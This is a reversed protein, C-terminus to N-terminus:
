ILTWMLLFDAQNSLDQSVKHFNLYKRKIMHSQLQHLFSIKMMLQAMAQIRGIIVQLVNLTMLKIEPSSETLPMTVFVLSLRLKTLSLIKLSGFTAFSDLNENTYSTLQNEQWGGPNPGQPLNERCEKLKTMQSISVLNGYGNLIKM